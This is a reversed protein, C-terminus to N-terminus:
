PQNTANIFETPSITSVESAWGLFFCVMTPMDETGEKWEKSGVMLFNQQTVHKQM